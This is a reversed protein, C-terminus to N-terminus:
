VHCVGLSHSIQEGLPGPNLEVDGSIILRQYIIALLYMEDKEAYGLMVVTTKLTLRSRYSTTKYSHHCQKHHFFNFSRVDASHSLHYPKLHIRFNLMSRIHLVIFLTLILLAPHLQSIAIVSRYAYLMVLLYMVCKELMMVITKLTLRPRTTGGVGAGYFSHRCRKHHFKLPLKIKMTQLRLVIFLTLILLAPHLLSMAIVSHYAHLRRNALRSSSLQRYIKDPHVNCNIRAEAVDFEILAAM